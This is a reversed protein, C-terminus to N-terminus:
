RYWLRLCVRSSLQVSNFAQRDRKVATCVYYKGKREVDVTINVLEDVDLSVTNDYLSSRWKSTTPKLDRDLVQVEYEVRRDYRNILWIRSQGVHSVSTNLDYTSSQHAFVHTAM